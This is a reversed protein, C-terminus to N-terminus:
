FVLKGVPWLRIAWFLIVVCLALNALRGTYFVPLPGLGAARALAIGAAQPLYPVFTYHAAPPYCVPIREEPRLPLQWLEEYKKVDVRLDPRNGVQFFADITRQLSVPMVGGGWEWNNQMVPFLHGESVHYARPFHSPEDAGQGPPIGFVYFLGFFALLTAFAHE